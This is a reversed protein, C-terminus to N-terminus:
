YRYIFIRSTGDPSIKIGYLNRSVSANKLDYYTSKLAIELDEAGSPGDIDVSINALGCQYLTCDSNGPADGDFRVLVPKLNYNAVNDYIIHYYKDWIAKLEEKTNLVAGTNGDTKIVILDFFSELTPVDEKLAMEKAVGSMGTYTPRAKNGYLELDWDQGVDDGVKVAGTSTDKGILHDFNSDTLYPGNDNISDLGNKNLKGTTDELLAMEKAGANSVYTPRDDIGELTLKGDSSGVTLEKTTKNMQLVRYNDNDKLEITQPANATKWGNAKLYTDDNVWDTAQISGGNWGKIIRKYIQQGSAGQFQVDLYLGGSYNVPMNVIVVWHQKYTFGEPYGGLANIISENKAPHESASGDAGVILFHRTSGTRLNYFYKYFSSIDTIAAPATEIVNTLADEKLAMKSYLDNIADEDLHMPGINIWRRNGDSGEIVYMNFTGSIAREKVLYASNKDLGTPDPLETILSLKGLINFSVGTKGQPGIDGRAGTDGKPGQEGRVGRKGQPGIVSGLSEITGDSYFISMVGTENIQVDTISRGQEGQIGQKGQPGPVTSALTGINLYEKPEGVKVYIYFPAQRGVLYADGISASEPLSPVDVVDGKINLGFSLAEIDSQNKRVQEELNRYIKKDIEIM